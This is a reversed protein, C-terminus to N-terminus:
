ASTQIEVAAQDEAKKHLGLCIDLLLQKNVTEDFNMAAIYQTISKITNGEEFADGTLAYDISEIIDNVDIIEIKYDDRSSASLITYFDDFAQHDVIKEVILKMYNQSALKSVEDITVKVLKERKIGSINISAGDKSERYYIKLFKPSISNQIFKMERKENLLWFGKDVDFDSWSLQYPTGIYRINDKKSKVHYHGSLVLNYDAFYSRDFGEVSNIGRSHMPFSKIDFHGMVIDVEDPWITEDERIIWPMMAIRHGEIELKTPESYVRVNKFEKTNETYFNPELSTKYYTDHNGIVTHFMVGNDDFWSFFQKKLKDMIFLDIISRNHVFDGLHIVHKIGNKLLFPFMQQEFFALQLRFVSKNFSRSGFHLDSTLCIM